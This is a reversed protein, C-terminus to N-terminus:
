EDDEEADARDLAERLQAEAQGMAAVNLFIGNQGPQQEFGQDLVGAADENAHDQCLADVAIEGDLNLGIRAVTAPADCHTCVKAITRYEVRVEM